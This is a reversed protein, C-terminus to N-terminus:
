SFVVNVRAQGPKYRGGHFEQLGEKLEHLDIRGDQNKDLEKFLKEIENRDSQRYGDSETKGPM